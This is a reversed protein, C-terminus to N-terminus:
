MMNDSSSWISWHNENRIFWVNIVTLDQFKVLAKEAVIDSGVCTWIKQNDSQSWRYTNASGIQRRHRVDDAFKKSEITWSNLEIKGLLM